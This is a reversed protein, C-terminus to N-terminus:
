REVAGGGAVWHGLGGINYVSGYGMQLLMQGAAQSRAGSACYLAVPRAPDLEPLCEPSAPDCKMRFVALPVHLAGRAKGSTALESRERVDIVTIEGAKARAVAEAGAIPQVRPGPTASPRLFSFM